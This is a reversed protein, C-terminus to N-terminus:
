AAQTAQATFPGALNVKGQIKGLMSGSLDIVQFQDEPLPITPVLGQPIAPQFGFRSFYKPLGLVFVLELGVVRCRELGHRVLREGVGQRQFAPDVGIPALLLAPQSGAGTDVTARHYLAYGKIGTDDAGVISLNDNYESTGRLADALKAENDRGFAARLIQNCADLEEPKATRIIVHM